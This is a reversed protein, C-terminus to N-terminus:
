KKMNDHYWKMLEFRRETVDKKGRYKPKEEVLKRRIRTVSEMSPLYKKNLARIADVIRSPANLKQLVDAYLLNDSNRAELDEKLVQEILEAMTKYKKDNM